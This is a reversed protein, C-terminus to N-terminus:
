TKEGYYKKYEEIERETLPSIPIYTTAIYLMPIGCHKPVVEEYGCAPCVLYDIRRFGGKQKYVMEIGCHKPVAEEHGCVLCVLRPM